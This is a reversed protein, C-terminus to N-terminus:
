VPYINHFTKIWQWQRLFCTSKIDQPFSDSSVINNYENNLDVKIVAQSPKDFRIQGLQVWFIHEFEATLGHHLFRM